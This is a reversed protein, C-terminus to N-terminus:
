TLLYLNVPLKYSPEALKFNLSGIMYVQKIILNTQEGVERLIRSAHAKSPENELSGIPLLCLYICPLFGWFLSFMKRGVRLFLSSAFSILENYNPDDIFIQSYSSAKRDM